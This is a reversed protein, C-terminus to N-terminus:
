KASDMSLFPPLLFYSPGHFIGLWDIRRKPSGKNDENSSRLVDKIAKIEFM